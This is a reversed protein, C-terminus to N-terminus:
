DGDTSNFGVVVGLEVAVEDHLLYQLRELKNFQSLAERYGDKTQLMDFLSKQKPWTSITQDFQSLVRNALETHNHSRLYSDLGAQKHDSPSRGLYISRLAQLNYKILGLSQKSRWSESFYPRPQGIKALPRSMKQLMFDLQNMMLGLYETQWQQADYTSWPNTQWQQEITTAHNHLNDTIAQVLQCTSKDGAAFSSNSDYFVWELGSLGQVTVSQKAIAQSNWLSKDQLLQNMKRGTINKKDPWFQVNWGLAVAQQPGKAQRQLPMWAQMANLWSAKVQELSIQPDKQCYLDLDSDLKTASSLFQQAFKLQLQHISEQSAFLAQTDVQEIGAAHSATSYYTSAVIFTSSLIAVLSFPKFM